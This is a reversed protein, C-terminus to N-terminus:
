LSVGKLYFIVRKSPFNENVNNTILPFFKGCVVSLSFNHSLPFSLARLFQVLVNNTMQLRVAHVSSVLLTFFATTLSDNSQKSHVQSPFRRVLTYRVRFNEIYNTSVLHGDEFVGSVLVLAIKVPNCTTQVRAGIDM